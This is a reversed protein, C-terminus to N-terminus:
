SAEAMLSKALLLSEADTGGKIHSSNEGRVYPHRMGEVILEKIKSLARSKLRHVSGHSISLHQAVYRESRGEWFIMELVRRQKTTLKQLFGAVYGRLDHEACNESFSFVSEVMEECLKDYLYPAALTESTRDEYFDLWQLYKEWTVADWHPTLNKLIDDPTPKGNPMLWPAESKVNSTLGNTQVQTKISEM